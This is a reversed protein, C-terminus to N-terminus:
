DAKNGHKRDYERAWREEPTETQSNSSRNAYKGEIIKVFNTPRIIWELDALFPAQGNKGPVQGCLFDMKSIGTFFSEWWELSQHDQKENWRTRLM